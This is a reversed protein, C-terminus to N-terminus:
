IGWKKGCKTEFQEKFDTIFNYANAAKAAAIVDDMTGSIKLPQINLNNKNNIKYEVM